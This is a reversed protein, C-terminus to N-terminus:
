RRGKSRTVMQFGNEDVQPVRLEEQAM